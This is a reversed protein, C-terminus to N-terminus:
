SKAKNKKLKKLAKQMDYYSMTEIPESNINMKKNKPRYWASLSFTKIVKNKGNEDKEEGTLNINGRLSPQIPSDQRAYRLIGFGQDKYDVVGEESIVTEALNLRFFRTKSKKSSHIQVWASLVYLKHDLMILGKMDSGKCKESLFGKGNSLKPKNQKPQPDKEQQESVSSNGSNKPPDFSLSVEAGKTKSSVPRPSM